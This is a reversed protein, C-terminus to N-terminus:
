EERMSCFLDDLTQLQTKIKDEGELMIRQEDNLGEMSVTGNSGNEMGEKLREIKRLKKLLGRIKKLAAEKTLGTEETAKALQESVLQHKRAQEEKMMTAVQEDEFWFSPREITTDVLTAMLQDLRAQADSFELPTQSLAQVSSWDNLAEHMNFLYEEETTEGAQFGVRYHETALDYSRNFYHCAGLENPTLNIKIPHSCVPCNFHQKATGKQSIQQAKIEVLEFCPCKFYFHDSLDGTSSTNSLSPHKTTLFSSM